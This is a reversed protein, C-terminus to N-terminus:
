APLRSALAKALKKLPRTRDRWAKVRAAEKAMCDECLTRGPLAERMMYRPCKVCIGAPRSQKFRRQREANTAMVTDYGAGDLKALAQILLGEVTELPLTFGAQRLLTRLAKAEAQNYVFAQREQNGYEGKVHCYGDDDVHYSTGKHEARRVGKAFTEITTELESPLALMM